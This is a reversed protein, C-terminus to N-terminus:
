LRTESRTLNTQESLSKFKSIIKNENITESSFLRTLEFSDDLNLKKTLYDFFEPSNLRIDLEKWLKSERLLSKYSHSTCPFFSRNAQIKILDLNPIKRQAQEILNTCDEKNLFDEIIEYNFPKEPM